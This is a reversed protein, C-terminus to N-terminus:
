VVSTDGGLTSVQQALQSNQQALLRTLKILNLVHENLENITHQQTALTASMGQEGSQRKGKEKEKEKLRQKRRSERKVEKTRQKEQQKLKRELPISDDM